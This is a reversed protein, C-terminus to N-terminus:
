LVYKFLNPEPMGADSTGRAIGPGRFSFCHIFCVFVFNMFSLSLNLKGLYLIFPIWGWKFATSSWVIVQELRQRWM